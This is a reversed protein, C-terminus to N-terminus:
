QIIELLLIEYHVTKGALPHNFDFYFNEEDKGVVRVHKVENTETEYMFDQGEELDFDEPVSNKPMSVVLGEDHMGYSNEPLLTLTKREGPEMGIIANELDPLNEPDGIIMEFPDEELTTDFVTGDDLKGVFHIKVSDGKKVKPM